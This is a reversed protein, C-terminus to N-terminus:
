RIIQIYVGVRVDPSLIPVVFIDIVNQAGCLVDFLELLPHFFEEYNQTKCLEALSFFRLTASTM